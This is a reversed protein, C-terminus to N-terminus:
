IRNKLITREKGAERVEENHERVMPLSARPDTSKAFTPSTPGRTFTPSKSESRGVELPESLSKKVQERSTGRSGGAADAPVSRTGRSGAAADPPDTM